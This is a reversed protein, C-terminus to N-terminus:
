TQGPTFIREERGSDLVTSQPGFIVRSLLSDCLFRSLASPPLPTGDPLTAPTVGRLLDYDLTTSIIHDEGPHWNAAWKADRGNATGDTTAQIIRTLTNYEMTITLHPRIRANPMQFGADLSQHVLSMLGDAQRQTFTPTDDPANRGTHTTLAQSLLAR